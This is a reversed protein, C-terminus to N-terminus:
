HMPMTPNRLWFRILYAKAENYKQLSVLVNGKSNLIGTNNPEISLAKDFLSIAENYKQLYALTTGKNSLALTNTPDVALVKDFLSIAENYKGVILLSIGENILNNVTNAKTITNKNNNTLVSTSSEQKQAAAEIQFLTASSSVSSILIWVPIMVVLSWALIANSM